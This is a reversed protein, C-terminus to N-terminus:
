LFGGAAPNRLRTNTQANGISTGNFITKYTNGISPSVLNTAPSGNTKWIALTWDSNAPVTFTTTFNTGGWVLAPSCAFVIAVAIRSLSFARFAPPTRLPPKIRRYPKGPHM